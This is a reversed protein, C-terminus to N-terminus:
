LGNQATVLCLCPHSFRPVLACCTFPCLRFNLCLLSLSFICGLIGTCLQVQQPLCFYLEVTLRTCCGTLDASCANGIATVM